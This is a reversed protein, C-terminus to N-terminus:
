KVAASAVGAVFRRQFIIYVVIVPLVSITTAAFLGGYDTGYQGAFTTLGVALVQNVNDSIMLYPWLYDDWVWLFQFIALAAISNISMPLIIRHFIRIESAGDIRAAELVEDPVAHMNQRMMFIGFGSIAAPIIISLYNDQLGANVFMTYRPIITVAWPIMMTGVTFGFLLGRGRFRYKAIVFGALASTYLVIATIVVSLLVSNGFLRIFDFKDEISSFNELTWSIPLFTQEPANIEENSKFASLVMWVFPFVTVLGLIALVATLIVSAIRTRM